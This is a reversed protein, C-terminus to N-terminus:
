GLARTAAISGPGTWAELGSAVTLSRARLQRKRTKAKQHGRADNARARPRRRAGASRALAGRAARPRRSRRARARRLQGGPPAGGGPANAARVWGGHAEATQRVIALGLGSGPLKRTGSPATSASSCTRCTRGRSLGPRPRARVPRRRAADGGGGAPRAGSARTTSCTRSRRDVRAAEGRVITPELDLEFRVRRPPARARRGRRRDPGPSTTAASEGARGRALEVVDGVLATLEDLEDVIDARLSQQEAPPLRDAEDLVQINARLRAIPTRLEHSADAILQRQAPLSRELADLTANFSRALRALEDSGSSRAPARVPGARRDAGRHARTFRM